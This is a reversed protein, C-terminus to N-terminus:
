SVGGKKLGELARKWHSKVTSIPLSMEAAITEISDGEIRRQVVERRDKPLRLFAEKMAKLVKEKEVEDKPFEILSSYEKKTLNDIDSVPMRKARTRESKTRDLFERYMVNWCWTSFKSKSPNYKSISSWVKIVAEQVLDEKDEKTLIGVSQTAGLRILAEGLGDAKTADSSYEAYAQDLAICQEKSLSSSKSKAM